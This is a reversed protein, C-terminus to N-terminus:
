YIQDLGMTHFLKNCFIFLIKQQWILQKLYLEVANHYKRDYMYIM